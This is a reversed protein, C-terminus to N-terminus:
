DDLFLEGKAIVDVIGGISVSEVYLADSSLRVELEISKKSPQYIREKFDRKNNLASVIGFAATGSGCATEYYTSDTDRVWVVPDIFVGNDNKQVFILGVASENQLELSDRVHKSFEVYNDKRFKFHPENLIVHTIGSLYAVFVKYGDLLKEEVHNKTSLYVKTNIKSGEKFCEGKVKENVGSVSLHCEWHNEGISKLSKSDEFLLLALVSRTANGCFEGGMMDLRPTGDELYSVVGVQEGGLHLPDLIKNSILARYRADMSDKNKILVTTNGSPSMKYFSYSTM